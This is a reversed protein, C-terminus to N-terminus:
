NREKPQDRRPHYLGMTLLSILMLPVAVLVPISHTSFRVASDVPPAIESLLGFRVHYAAVVAVVLMLTDCAILVSRFFRHQNRLM